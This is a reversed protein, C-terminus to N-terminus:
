NAASTALIYWLAKCNEFCMCIAANWLCGPCRSERMTGRFDIVAIYGKLFGHRRTDSCAGLVRARWQKPVHGSCANSALAADDIPSFESGVVHKTVWSIADALSAQHPKLFPREGFRARRILLGYFYFLLRWKFGFNAIKFVSRSISM